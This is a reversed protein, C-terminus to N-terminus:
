KGKKVYKQLSHLYETKKIYFNIKIDLKKRILLTFEIKNQRKQM